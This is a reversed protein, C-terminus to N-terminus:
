GAAAPGPADPARDAVGGLRVLVVGGLEGLLQGGLPRDGCGAAPRPGAGTGRRRAPPPGRVCARRLPDRVSARGRRTWRSSCAACSTRATRRRAGALDPAVELPARRGVVAQEALDDGEAAVDGRGLAVQGGVDDLPDVRLPQVGGPEVLVQPQAAVLGEAGPERQHLPPDDEAVLHPQALRDLGDRRHGMEGRAAGGVEEHDARGAHEDVPGALDGLVRRQRHTASCPLSRARAAPGNAAGRRRRRSWTRSARCARGARRRPGRQQDDVLRVVHLVGVGLPRPRDVPDGGPGLPHQEEGARRHLVPDVLELGQDVVQPRLDGGVM